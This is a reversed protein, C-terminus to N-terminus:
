GFMTPKIRRFIRFLFSRFLFCSLHNTMKSIQWLLCIIAPIMWSLQLFVFLFVWVHLWNIRAYSVAPDASDMESSSCEVDCFFFFFFVTKQAM